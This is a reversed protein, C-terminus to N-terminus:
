ILENKIKTIINLQERTLKKPMKVNLKIYQNGKISSNNHKGLGQATLKLKQSPETFPPINVTVSGTLTPVELSVGTLLDFYGVNVVCNVDYGDRSFSPHSLVNFYIMLDGAESGRYGAHGKGRLKIGDNSFSGIPIKFEVSSDKEYNGKGYCKKCQREYIVGAGECTPCVTEQQVMGFITERRQFVRGKGQCTSCNAYKSGPEFGKSQCAECECLRRYKFSKSSGKAVEELTVDLIAEIDKGKQVSQTQSGQKKAGSGFFNNIIDQVTDMNMNGGYGTNGFMSFDFDSAGAPGSGDAVSGYRDYQQRKKDDGLIQYASNAEKFKAEAEPNGKNKDPHYQHALKHYAKKIEATTATKSVNLVQYLDNM